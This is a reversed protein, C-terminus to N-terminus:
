RWRSLCLFHDICVICYNKDSTRM